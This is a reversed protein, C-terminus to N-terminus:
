LRTINLLPQNAYSYKDLQLYFSWESPMTQTFKFKLLHSNPKRVPVATSLSVVYAHRAYNDYGHHLAQSTLAPIKKVEKKGSLCM